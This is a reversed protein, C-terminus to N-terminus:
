SKRVNIKWVKRLMEYSKQLNKMLKEYFKRPLKEYSKGLINMLETM